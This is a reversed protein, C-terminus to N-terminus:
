NRVIWSFLQIVNVVPYLHLWTYVHIYIYIRVCVYVCVCTYIYTPLSCGDWCNGPQSTSRPVASTAGPANLSNATMSQRKRIAAMAGCLTDSRFGFANRYQVWKIGNDPMPVAVAAVSNGSEQWVALWTTTRHCTLTVDLVHCACVSWVVLVCRDLM